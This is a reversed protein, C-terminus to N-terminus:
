RDELEQHIRNFLREGSASPVLQVARGDEPHPTRKVYAKEELARVVRSATSKDLRLTAAVQNLTQPGGRVLAELAYCESVTIDHCCIRERDRFQYLRLLDQLAETFAAADEVLAKDPTTTPLPRLAPHAATRQMTCSYEPRLSPTLGRTARGRASGPPCSRWAPRGGARASPKSSSRRSIRAGCRRPSCRTITTSRCSSSRSASAANKSCRAGSTHRVTMRPGGSCGSM